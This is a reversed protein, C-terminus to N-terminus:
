GRPSTPIRSEMDEPNDANDCVCNRKEIVRPLALRAFNNFVPHGNLAGREGRVVPKPKDARLAIQQQSLNLWVAELSRCSRNVLRWNRVRGSPDSRLFPALSPM